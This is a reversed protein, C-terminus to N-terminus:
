ALLSLGAGASSRYFADAAQNRERGRRVAFRRRRDDAEGFLLRGNLAPIARSPLSKIAGGAPTFRQPKINASPTTRTFKRMAAAPNGHCNEPSASVTGAGSRRM